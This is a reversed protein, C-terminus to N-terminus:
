QIKGQNMEYVITHPLVLYLSVLNVMKVLNIAKRVLVDFIEMGFGDMQLIVCGNVCELIAEFLIKLMNGHHIM